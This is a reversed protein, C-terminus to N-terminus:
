SIRRGSAFLFNGRCIGRLGLLLEFLRIMEQLLYGFSRAPASIERRVCSFEVGNIRLDRLDHAMFVTQCERRGSAVAEKMGDLHANVGRLFGGCVSRTGRVAHIMALGIECGRRPLPDVEPKGVVRGSDGPNAGIFPLIQTAPRSRWM